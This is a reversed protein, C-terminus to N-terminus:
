QKPKWLWGALKSVVGAAGTVAAPAVFEEAAAVLGAAPSAVVALGGAAGLALTGATSLVSSITEDRKKAQQRRQAENFLESTYFGGKWEVMEDIKELLKKVQSVDNEVRNNFVVYGTECMAVIEKLRSCTNIYRDVPKEAQDKFTFLIITYKFADEGFNDKIWQVANNEEETVRVGLRMVLLFAHPGPLSLVMCKDIEEKLQQSTMKTDFIGPTDIVSIYRELHQRSERRCAITVSEGCQEDHFLREGLITNGTASKGSGTKGLLVIRLESSMDQQDSVVIIAVVMLLKIAM